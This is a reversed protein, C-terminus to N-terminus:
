VRPRRHDERGAHEQQPGPESDAAAGGAAASQGSAAEIPKVAGNGSEAGLVELEHHPM